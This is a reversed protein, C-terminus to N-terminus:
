ILAEQVELLVYIVLPEQDFLNQNVLTQTSSSSITGITSDVSWLIEEIMKTDGYKNESM